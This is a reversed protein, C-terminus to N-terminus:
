GNRRIYAQHLTYQVEGGRLFVQKPSLLNSSATPVHYVDTLEIMNWQDGNYIRGKITGVGIARLPTDPNATKFARDCPLYDSFMKKDRAMHHSAGTDLVFSVAGADYPIPSLSHNLALSLSTTLATYEGISTSSTSKATQSLLMSELHKIRDLLERTSDTAGGAQALQATGVSASSGALTSRCSSALHGYFRCKTCFQEQPGGKQRCRAILHGARGCNHCTRLDGTSRQNSVGPKTAGPNPTLTSKPTFTSSRSGASRYYRDRILMYQIFEESSDHPCREAEMSVEKLNDNMCSGRLIDLWDTESCSGGAHEFSSLLDQMRDFHTKMSDEPRIRATHLALKTNRLDSNSAFRSCIGKWMEYATRPNGMQGLLALEISHALNRRLGSDAETLKAQDLDDESVEHELLWALEGAELLLYTKWSSFNKGSKSLKESPPEFDRKAALLLSPALNKLAVRIDLPQSDDDPTRNMNETAILDFDELLSFYTSNHTHVISPPFLESESPTISSLDSPETPESSTSSDSTLPQSQQTDSVTQTANGSNSIYTRSRTSVM